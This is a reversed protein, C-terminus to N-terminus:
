LNSPAGEHVVVAEYFAVTTIQEWRHGCYNTWPEFVTAVDTEFIAASRALLDHFLTNPDNPDIQSATWTGEAKETLSAIRIRQSFFLRMEDLM